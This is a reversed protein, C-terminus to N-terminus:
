VGHHVAPPLLTGTSLQKDYTIKKTYFFFLCFIKQIMTSQYAVPLIPLQSFPQKCIWNQVLTPRKFKSLFLCTICNLQSVEVRLFIWPFLFNILWMTKWHRSFYEQGKTVDCDCIQIEITPIQHSPGSSLLRYSSVHVTRHNRCFVFSFLTAHM